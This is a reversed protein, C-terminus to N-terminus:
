LELIIAYSIELGVTIDDYQMETDATDCFHSNFIYLDVVSVLNSPERSNIQQSPGLPVSHNQEHQTRLASSGAMALNWSAAM